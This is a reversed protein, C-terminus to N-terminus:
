PQNTGAGAEPSGVEIRTVSGNGRHAVWVGDGTASVDVPDDQLSLPEGVVEGTTPDLRRLTATGVDEEDGTLVWLYGGGFSLDSHRGGLDVRTREYTRRDVRMITGLEDSVWLADGGVALDGSASILVGTVDPNQSPKLAGNSRQLQTLTGAAGNYAWAEGAQDGVAVDGGGEPLSGEKFLSRSGFSLGPAPGRHDVYVTRTAPDAMWVTEDKVAMDLHTGEPWEGAYRFGVTDTTPQVEVIRGGESDFVWVASRSSFPDTAVEEPVGGVEITAVVETTEPDIRSVTGDGSNAVWVSTDTAVISVPAEGVSILTRQPAAVTRRDDAVLEPRPFVAIAVVAAATALTAGGLWTLRRKRRGRLFRQEAAALDSPAFSEAESSLARKLLEDLDKM